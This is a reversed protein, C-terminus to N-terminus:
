SISRVFAEVDGPPDLPANQERSVPRAGAQCAAITRVLEIRQGILRRMAGEDEAGILTEIFSDTELCRQWQDATMQGPAQCEALLQLALRHRNRTDEADRLQEVERELGAVQAHVEGLLEEVLDPRAERVREATLSQLLEDGPAAAVPQGAASEFLGRTTAPDAVLDVSQVHTIAEVVISDGRRGTRARVNHSFGVNQPAHEADWLLQEALPHRPNFHFDGFLGEDPRVTVNRILGIRDRYDRPESPGGKPHNVNVKAGEYLSAAQQIAEDLYIRGNRSRAGLIKVGHLIGQQRDARIPLGESDVYEQLPEENM